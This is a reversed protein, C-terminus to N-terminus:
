GRFTKLEGVLCIAFMPVKTHRYGRSFGHSRVSSVWQVDLKLEYLGFPLSHLKMKSEMIQKKPKLLCSNVSIM